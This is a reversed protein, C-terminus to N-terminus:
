RPKVVRPALKTAAAPAGILPAGTTPAGTTPAALSPAAPAPAGATIALRLREVQRASKAFYLALLNGSRIVTPAAQWPNVTDASPAVRLTDLTSWVRALASSDAFFFAIMTDTMAVRYRVGPLPIFPVRASDGTAKFSLGAHAIRDVLACPQWQGTRPCSPDGPGPASASPPAARQTASQQDAGGCGILASAILVIAM